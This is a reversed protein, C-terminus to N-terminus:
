RVAKRVEEHIDRLMNIRCATEFPIIQEYQMVSLMSYEAILDTLADLFKNPDYIETFYKNLAGFDPAEVMNEM